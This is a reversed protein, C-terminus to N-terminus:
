SKGATSVGFFKYVHCFGIAGSYLLVAGFAGLVIGRIGRVVLLGRGLFVAGLVVRITRDIPGENLEM